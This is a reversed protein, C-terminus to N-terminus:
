TTGNSNVPAFGTLYLIRIERGTGTVEEIEEDCVFRYGEETVLHSLSVGARTKGSYEENNDYALLRWTRSDVDIKRLQGVITVSESGLAESASLIEVLPEAQKRTISCGLTVPRIPSAWAYKASVGAEVMFRLLRLYANATHGRYKKARLLTEEPDSAVSAIEDLADLARVIEGTGWLDPKQSAELVLRFSGPLMPVAVDLLPALDRDIQRRQTLTLSGLAKTYAHKLLSQLHILFSSLTTARIKHSDVTEPSELTLELVVNNRAIAEARIVSKQESLDSAQVRFDPDPLYTPPIAGTQVQLIMPKDLGGEIEAMFWDPEPRKVMLDLLDIEGLRLQQLDNPNVGVVLYRDMGALDEVLLGVYHGGIIDRAEFVQIGDYYFLVGTFTISKM